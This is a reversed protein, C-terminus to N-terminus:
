EDEIEEGETRNIWEICRIDRKDAIRRTNEM